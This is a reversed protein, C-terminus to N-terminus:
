NQPGILPQRKNFPYDKRLPHGVFENYMLLRRLDPHGKFRIGFMDWVEREYWNAASWINTITDIEPDSDNVLAKIRLRKYSHTSFLHYVVEFRELEQRGLYDVCSLDMLVNFQLEPHEKAFQCISGVYLKNIILTLEGIPQNVDFIADPFQRKILDVIFDNTPM